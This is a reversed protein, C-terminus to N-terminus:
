QQRYRWKFGCATKQIGRCAAGIDGKGNGVQKIADRICGYEAVVENTLPNIQEIIRASPNNGGVRKEAGWTRNEWLEIRKKLLEESFDKEWIWIYGGISKYTVDGNACQSINCIKTQRRAEKASCFMNVFVGDTTYQLISLSCNEKNKIGLEPRKTGLSAKVGGISKNLLDFGFSRYLSIYHKEWLDVENSPIEEILEMKPSDGKSTLSNIWENKDKNAKNTRAEYLHKSLRYKLNKTQGIWRVNGEKDSLSYIFIKGM